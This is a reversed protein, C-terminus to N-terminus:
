GVSSCFHRNHIVRECLLTWIGKLTEWSWKPIVQIDKM